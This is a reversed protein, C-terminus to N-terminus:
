GPRGSGTLRSWLSVKVPPAYAFVREDGHRRVETKPGYRGWSFGMGV